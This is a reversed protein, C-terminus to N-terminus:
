NRTGEEVTVVLNVTKEKTVDGTGKWLELFMYPEEDPEGYRVKLTGVPPAEGFLAIGIVIGILVGLLAGGAAYCIWM